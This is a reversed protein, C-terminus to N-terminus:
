KIYLLTYINRYISFLSITVLPSLPSPYILLKPNVNAFSRILILISPLLSVPLILMTLLTPQQWYSLCARPLIQFQESYFELWKLIPAGTGVGWVKQLIWLALGSVSLPRGRTDEQGGQILRKNDQRQWQPM